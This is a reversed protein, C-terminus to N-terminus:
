RNLNLNLYLCISATKQPRTILARLHRHEVLVRSLPKPPRSPWSRLQAIDPHDIAAETAFQPEPWPSRSTQSPSWRVGLVACARHLHAPPEILAPADAAPESLRASIATQPTTPLCRPTRSRATLQSGHASYAAQELLRPPTPRSCSTRRCVHFLLLWISTTCAVVTAVRLAPDAHASPELDSTGIALCQLSTTASSPPPSAALSYTLLSPVELSDLAPIASPM